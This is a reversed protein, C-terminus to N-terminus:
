GSGRLTVAQLGSPDCGPLPVVGQQLLVGSSCFFAVFMRAYLIQFPAFKGSVKKAAMIQLSFACAAFFLALIGPRNVRSLWPTAPSEGQPSMDDSGSIPSQDNDLIIILPVFSM